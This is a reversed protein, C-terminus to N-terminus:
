RHFSNTPCFVVRLKTDSEFFHFLPVMFVDHKAIHDFAVVNQHVDLKVTSFNSFGQLIDNNRVATFAFITILTEARQGTTKNRTLAQTKMSVRLERPKFELVRTRDSTVIILTVSHIVTVTDFIVFPQSVFCIHYFSTSFLRIEARFAVSIWGNKQWVVM